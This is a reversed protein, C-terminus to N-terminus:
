HSTTLWSDSMDKGIRVPVAIKKGAPARWNRELVREDGRHGTEATEDTDESSARAQTERRLRNRLTEDFATSPALPDISMARAKQGMDQSLTRGKRSRLFPTREDGNASDEEDSDAAGGDDGDLEPVMAPAKAKAKAAERANVSKTPSVSRGDKQAQSLMRERWAIAERVQAEHGVLGTRGGEDRAAMKDRDEDDEGESVPETYRADGGDKDTDPTTPTIHGGSSNDTSALRSPPGSPAPRAIQLAGTDPKLIDTDVARTTLM